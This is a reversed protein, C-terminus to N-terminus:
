VSTLGSGEGATELAFDVKGTKDADYLKLAERVIRRIYADSIGSASGAGADVTASRAERADMSSRLVELQAKNERIFNAFETQLMRLEEGSRNTQQAVLEAVKEENIDSANEKLLFNAM